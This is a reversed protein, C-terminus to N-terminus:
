ILKWTLLDNPNLRVTDAADRNGDIRSGNVEFVWDPGTHGFHGDIGNISWIYVGTLGERATTALGPAAQQTVELVTPNANM